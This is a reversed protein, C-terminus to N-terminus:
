QAQLAFICIGGVFGLASGLLISLIFGYTDPDDSTSNETILGAILGGLLGFFLSSPIGFLFYGWYGLPIENWSVGGVGDLTMYLRIVGAILGMIAATILNRRNTVGRLKTNRNKERSPNLFLFDIIFEIIFWMTYGGRM